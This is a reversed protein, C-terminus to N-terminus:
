LSAHRARGERRAAADLPQQWMVSLMPGSARRNRPMASRM